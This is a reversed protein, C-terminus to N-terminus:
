INEFAISEALRPDRVAVIKTQGAVRLILGVMLTAMGIVCLISALVGTPGGANATSGAKM